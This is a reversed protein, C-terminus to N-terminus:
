SHHTVYPINDKSLASFRQALIQLLFPFPNVAEEGTLDEFVELELTAGAAFFIFLTISSEAMMASVPLYFDM